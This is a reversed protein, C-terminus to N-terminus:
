QARAKPTISKDQLATRIDDISGYTGKLNGDCDRVEIRPYSAKDRRPEEAIAYAYGGKTMWDMVAQCEACEGTTPRIVVVQDSNAPCNPVRPLDGAQMAARLDDLTKLVTRRGRCDTLEVRPVVQDKEDANVSIFAVRGNSLLKIMDDCSKGCDDSVVVQVIPSCEEEVTDPDPESVHPTGTIVTTGAPCYSKVQAESLNSWVWVGKDNRRKVAMGIGTCTVVFRMHKNHNYPAGGQGDRWCVGRPNLHGGGRVFNSQEVRSMFFEIGVQKLFPNDRDCAGSKELHSKLKSLQRCVAPLNSATSCGRDLIRVQVVCARKGDERKYCLYPGQLRRAVLMDGGNSHGEHVAVVRECQNERKWKEFGEIVTDSFGGQGDFMAFSAALDCKNPEWRWAQPEGVAGKELLNCLDEFWPKGDGGAQNKRPPYFCGCCTKKQKKPTERKEDRILFLNPTPLPPAVTAFPLPPTPFSPPASTPVAIFNADIGAPAPETAADSPTPSSVPGFISFPENWPLTEFQEVFRSLPDALSQVGDEALSSLTEAEFEYTAYWESSELAGGEPLEVGSDRVFTGTRVAGLAELIEQASPEGQLLVEDAAFELPQTSGAEVEPQAEAMPPWVTEARVEVPTSLSFLLASGIVGAIFRVFYRPVM